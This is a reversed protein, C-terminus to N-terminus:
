RASPLSNANAASQANRESQMHGSLMGRSQLQLNRTARGAFRSAPMASAPSTASAQKVDGFGPSADSQKGGEIYPVYRVGDKALVPASERQEEPSLRDFEEFAVLAERAAKYNPDATLAQQFCSKAEEPLDQSAFVFAMNYFADAESGTKCFQEFADDYRKQHGLVLGLNNRYRSSQSDLTTAKILASEASDLRGQQMYCFGLDNLLEPNRPQQQLAVLLCQEADTHKGQNDLLVGLAHAAEPNNPNQKLVAEYVKRAKDPKGNIELAKGRSIEAGLAEDQSSQKPPSKTAAKKESSAITADPSPLRPSGDQSKWSLWSPREPLHSCGTQLLVVAIIAAAFISTRM